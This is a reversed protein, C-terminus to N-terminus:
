SLIQEEFDTIARKRSRLHLLKGAPDIDDIIDLERDDRDHAARLSFLM